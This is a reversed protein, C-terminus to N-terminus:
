PSEPLVLLRGAQLASRPRWGHQTPKELHVQCETVWRGSTVGLLKVLTLKKGLFTMCGEGLGWGKVLSCDTWAGLVFKFVHRFTAQSWFWLNNKGTWVVKCNNMGTYGSPKILSRQEQENYLVDGSKFFFFFGWEGDIWLWLEDNFKLWDLIIIAPVKLSPVAQTFMVCHCSFCLSSLNRPLAGVMTSSGWPWHSVPLWIDLCSLANCLPLLSRHLM